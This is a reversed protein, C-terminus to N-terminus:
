ASLFNWFHMDYRCIQHNCFKVINEHFQESSSNARNYNKKPDKTKPSKNEERGKRLPPIQSCGYSTRGSRGRKHGRLNRGSGSGILKHTGGKQANDIDLIIQSKPNFFVSKGAYGSNNPGIGCTGEILRQKLLNTQKLSKWSKLYNSIEKSNNFSLTNEDLNLIIGDHPITIDLEPTNKICIGLIFPVPAELLVLHKEPVIPVYVHM